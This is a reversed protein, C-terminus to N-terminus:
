SAPAIVYRYVLAAVIAIGLPVLWGTWSSSCRSLSSVCHIGATSAGLGDLSIQDSKNGHVVFRCWFM